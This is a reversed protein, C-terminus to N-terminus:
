GPTSRDPTEDDHQDPSPSDPLESDGQAPDAAAASRVAELDAETAKGELMRYMRQLDDNLKAIAADARDRERAVYSETQQDAQDRHRLAWGIGAVQLQFGGLRSQLEDTTCVTTFTKPPNFEFDIRNFLTSAREMEDTTPERSLDIEFTYRTYSGLSPYSQSSPHDPLEDLRRVSEIRLDGETTTDTVGDQRRFLRKVRRRWAPSAEAEGETDQERPQYKFVELETTSWTFVHGYREDYPDDVFQHSHLYKTPFANIHGTVVRVAEEFIKQERDQGNGGCVHFRWPGDPPKHLVALIFEMSKDSQMPSGFRYDSLDRSWTEPPHTPLVEWDHLLKYINPKPGLRDVPSLVAQRYDDNRIKAFSRRQGRSAFGAGIRMVMALQFMLESIAELARKRQDLAAAHQTHPLPLSQYALLNLHEDATTAMTVISPEGVLM